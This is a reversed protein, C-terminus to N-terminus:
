KKYAGFLKSDRWIRMRVCLRLSWLHRKFINIYWRIDVVNTTNLTVYSQSVISANADPIRWKEFSRSQSITGTKDFCVTSSALFPWRWLCAHHLKQDSSWNHHLSAIEWKCPVWGSISLSRNTNGGLHIFYNVGVHVYILSISKVSTMQGDM